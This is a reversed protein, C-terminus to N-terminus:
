WKVQELGDSLDEGNVHFYNYDDIADASDYVDKNSSMSPTYWSKWLRRLSTLLPNFARDLLINGEEIQSVSLKMANNDNIGALVGLTNSLIISEHLLKTTPEDLAPSSELESLRKFWLVVRHAYGLSLPVFPTSEQISRSDTDAGTDRQLESIMWVCLSDIDRRNRNCYEQVSLHREILDVGDRYLGEMLVAQWTIGANDNAENPSTTTPTGIARSVFAARPDSRKVRSYTPTCLLTDLNARETTRATYSYASVM